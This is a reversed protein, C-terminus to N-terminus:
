ILIWSGYTTGQLTIGAWKPLTVDSAGDILEGVAARIIVSNGTNKVVYIKGPTAAPLTIECNERCNVTYDNEIITYDAVVERYQTTVYFPFSRVIESPHAYGKAGGSSEVPIKSLNDVAVQADTFRM